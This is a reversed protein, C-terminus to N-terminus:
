QMLNKFAQATDKASAKAADLSDKMKQASTKAATVQAAAASKSENAAAEKDAVKGAVAGTAAGIKESAAKKVFTACQTSLAKANKILCDTVSMDGLIIEPCVKKIESTDCAEALTTPEKKQALGLMDLLGAHGTTAMMIGIFGVLFVKKM